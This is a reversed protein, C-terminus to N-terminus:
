LSHLHVTFNFESRAESHSTATAQNVNSQTVTNSNNINLEMKFGERLEDLFRRRENPLEVGNLLKSVSVPQVVGEVIYEREGMAELRLLHQYSVAAEPQGPIPVM